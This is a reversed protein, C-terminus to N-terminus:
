SSALMKKWDERILALKREVTRVSVNLRGAIEEHTFGALRDLAIQRLTDDRLQSLLRDMEEQIAVMAEPTAATTAIAESLSVQQRDGGRKAAQRNRNQDIVKRRTSVVLLRWLDDRDAVGDFRGRKAGEALLQFVSQATADAGAIPDRDADFRQRALRVLRPFFHEYLVAEAERDGERLSHFWRTVSLHESESM